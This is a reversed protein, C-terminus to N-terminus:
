KSGGGIRRDAALTRNLKSQEQKDKLIQEREKILREAEEITYEEGDIVVTATTQIDKIKRDYGEIEAKQSKISTEEDSVKIDIEAAQTHIDDYTKETKETAIHESPDVAPNSNYEDILENLVAVDQAYSREKAQFAALDTAAIEGGNGTHKGSMLEDLVVKRGTKKLYKNISGEARQVDDQTIVDGAARILGGADDLIDETATQGVKTSINDYTSKLTRYKSSYKGAKGGEILSSAFNEMADISGKLATQKAIVDQKPKIANEVEKKQVEYKKSGQDVERRKLEIARKDKRLNTAEQELGYDDLGFKSSLVAARSGFFGAGNIRAERLKRNVDAQRALGGSFGKNTSFGRAAGTLANGLRGIGRGGGILGAAMGGLAGTVRKPVQKGGLTGEEFKKLPNLTFKGDGDLKIGLGELLKPLQKAFMLAGIIIFISVIGNTVYSGDIIDVLRLDAVKGIIYVAFYLALLRIFLSLYTKFCMDYWKKFMGDKGSKPDVYSIIPIPAALQLFALKISRVAIDMCFTILLLIIVVGVVTSFIFKYDMVYNTESDNESDTVTALAMDQRFMLGFNGNEIGAVYTELTQKSFNNDKDEDTLTELATKCEGNFKTVDGERQTLTDCNIIGDANLSLNPSFFPMMTVYAIKDGATNFFSENTASTEDDGFILVSLSNDELIITQLQYAYSFIYPTLILLSLSIIINKSLKSIGKSKDSFDDPNVVYTILSLTVKFVMFIALLKYIRDAMGVIDAQSLVSTRAITILVDYISSIFNFVIKDISFFFQRILSTFWMNSALIYM